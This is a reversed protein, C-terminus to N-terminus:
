QGESVSFPVSIIEGSLGKKAKSRIDVDFPRNINNGALDELRSEIQLTYSGEKWPKEPLFRVIREEGGTEWTGLVDDGEKTVHIASRLLSYDLPSKLDVALEDFSGPSPAHLTWTQPDPGLSDRKITFFKKVYPKAVAAGRIDDWGASIILTYNGGELLPPGQELNPKLGRKIRGPDLWLTLLTGDHNWLEPQLDLFVRRLTDRDNKLLTVYGLSRGERMPRSFQLYIKLLNEPVTDQSPYIALVVPAEAGDPLPIRLERVQDDVAIEYRLGRTFPVLPKFIVEDRNAHYTGLIAAAKGEKVLRVFVRREVSDGNGRLLNKPISIATAAEKEWLVKIEQGKEECALVLFIAFFILNHGPRLRIGFKRSPTIKVVMGGQRYDM